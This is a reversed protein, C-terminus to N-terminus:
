IIVSAIFVNNGATLKKFTISTMKKLQQKLVNVNWFTTYRCMQPKIPVKTISNNCITKQNLCHLLNSFSDINSSTLAYSSLAYLFTHWNKPGGQVFNVNQGSINFM